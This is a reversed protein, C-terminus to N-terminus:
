LTTVLTNSEVSIGSGQLSATTCGQFIQFPCMKSSFPGLTCPFLNLHSVMTEKKLLHDFSKKGFLNLILVQRFYPSKYFIVPTIILQLISGYSLDCSRRLIENCPLLLDFTVVPSLTLSRCSLSSPSMSKNFFFTLGKHM